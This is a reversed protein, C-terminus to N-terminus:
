KALVLISELTEQTPQCQMIGCVKSNRSTDLVEYVEAFGGEGIKKIVSWRRNGEQGIREDKRLM